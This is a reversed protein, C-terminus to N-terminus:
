GEFDEDLKDDESQTLINEAELQEMLQAARAQGIRLQRQLYSVSIQRHESALRRAQDLLTKQTDAEETSHEYSPLVKALDPQKIQQEKWFTLINEELSPFNVRSNVPKFM